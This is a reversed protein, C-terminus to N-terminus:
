RHADVSLTQGNASPNRFVCRVNFERQMIHCEIVDM